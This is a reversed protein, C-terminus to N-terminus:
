RRPRGGYRGPRLHKGPQQGTQGINEVIYDRDILLTLGRRMASAQEPTKGAFLDSNVNFALM